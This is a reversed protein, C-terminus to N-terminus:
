TRRNLWGLKASRSQWSRGAWFLGISGLLLVGSSPEPVATVSANVSVDDLNFNQLQNIASFQLVSSAASILSGPVQFTETTYQTSSLAAAALTTTFGGLSVLLSDLGSPASEDLVAFSLTYDQGITTALTQFLTGPLVATSLLSGLAADYNGSAPLTADVSSAGNDSWSPPPTNCIAATSVQCGAPTETEFGGNAVLDARAYGGGAAVMSLCALITRVTKM